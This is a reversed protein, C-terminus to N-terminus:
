EHTKLIQVSAIAELLASAAASELESEAESHAIVILVGDDIPCCYKAMYVTSTPNGLNYGMFVNFLVDHTIDDKFDLSKDSSGLLMVPRRSERCYASAFPDSAITHKNDEIIKLVNRPVIMFGEHMMVCIFPDCGTIVRQITEYAEINM